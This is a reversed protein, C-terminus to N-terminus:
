RNLAIAATDTRGNRPLSICTFCKRSELEATVTVAGRDDNICPMFERYSTATEHFQNSLDGRDKAPAQVAPTTAINLPSAASLQLRHHEKLHCPRCLRMVELPRNYNYHHNDKKTTKCPCEYIITLKKGYMKQYAANRIVARQRDYFESDDIGYLIDYEDADLARYLSSIDYNNETNYIRKNTRMFQDVAKM